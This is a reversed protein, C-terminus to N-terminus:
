SYFLQWMVDNNKDVSVLCDSLIYLKPVNVSCLSRGNATALIYLTGIVFPYLM